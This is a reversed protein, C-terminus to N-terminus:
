KKNKFIKLSYEFKCLTSQDRHSTSGKLSKVEEELELIKSRTYAESRTRLDVSGFSKRVLGTRSCGAKVKAKGDSSETKVEDFSETKVRPWVTIFKNIQGRTCM